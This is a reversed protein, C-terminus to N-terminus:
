MFNIYLIKRFTLESKGLLPILQMREGLWTLMQAANEKYIKAALM